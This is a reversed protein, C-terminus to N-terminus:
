GPGIPATREGCSSPISAREESGKAEVSHPAQKSTQGTLISMGEISTWRRVAATSDPAVGRESRRTIAASLRAKAEGRPKSRSCRSPPASCRHSGRSWRIARTGPGMPRQVRDRSRGGAAELKREQHFVSRSSPLQVAGSGHVAPSGSDRGSRARRGEPRPGCRAPGSRAFRRVRGRPSGPWEPATRELADAVVARRRQRQRPGLVYAANDRAEGRGAARSAQGHGGVQRLRPGGGVELQDRVPPRAGRLEVPHVADQGSARHRDGLRARDGQVTAGRLPTALQGQDRIPVDADHESVLQHRADRLRDELSPGAAYSPLGIVNIEPGDAVDSM